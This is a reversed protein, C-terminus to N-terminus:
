DALDAFAAEPSNIALRRDSEPVLALAGQGQVTLEGLVARFAAKGLLKEADGVGILKKQYIQEDGYGARSLQDVVANEDMWKRPPRRGEVLKYGPYYNGKLAMSYAYAKVDKLWAEVQDALDLIRPIEEDPIIGPNDPGNRLVEMCRVARHYCLAKAPCFRCWEGSNFEGEGEWALQALPAISEGWAILDDKDIEETSISDLNPQVITNKVTKFAYLDGWANIAGLGYLRAQSNEVASVPVGSGNKYDLVHLVTDSVITADATGFCHEAWPAMEYRQEILLQADSCTRKVEYYAGMVTDVYVDTAWDMKSWPMDPHTSKLDDAQAKFVFDNIEGLEKRLKLEALSHAATGEAAFSSGKDGFREKFKEGLRASPPCHLWRDSSSPGQISHLLPPM